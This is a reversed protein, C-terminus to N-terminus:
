ITHQSSVRAKFQHMTLMAHVTHLSSVVRLFSALHCRQALVTSTATYTIVFVNTNNCNENRIVSLIEAKTSWHEHVTQMICNLTRGLSIHNTTLNSVYHLSITQTEQQWITYLSLYDFFSLYPKSWGDRVLTPLGWVTASSSKPNNWM